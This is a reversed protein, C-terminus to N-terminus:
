AYVVRLHRGDSEAAVNCFLVREVVISQRVNIYIISIFFAVQPRM